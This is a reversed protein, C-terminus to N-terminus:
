EEEEHEEEEEQDFIEHFQHLYKQGAVHVCASLCDLNEFDGRYRKKSNKGEKRKQKRLETLLLAGKKSFEKALAITQVLNTIGDELSREGVGDEM